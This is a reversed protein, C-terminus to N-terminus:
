SNPSIHGNRNLCGYEPPFVETLRVWVESPYGPLLTNLALRIMPPRSEIVYGCFTSDGVKLDKRYAALRADEKAQRQAQALQEAAARKEAEVREAQLRLEREKADQAQKALIAQYPGELAAVDKALKDKFTAYAAEYHAQIHAMEPELYPEAHRALPVNPLVYPTVTFAHAEPKLGAKVYPKLPAKDAQIRATWDALTKANLAEAQTSEDTLREALAKFADIDAFGAKRIATTVADGFKDHNFEVWKRTEAEVAKGLLLWPSLMVIVPAILVGGAVAAVTGAVTNGKAKRQAPTDGYDSQFRNVHVFDDEHERWYACEDVNTKNHIVCEFRGTDFAPNLTKADVQWSEYLFRKETIPKANVLLEQGISFEGSSRSLSFTLKAAQPQAMALVMVLAAAGQIKSM